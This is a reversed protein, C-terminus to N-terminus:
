MAADRGLGIEPGHSLGLRLDPHRHGSRWLPRITEFRRGPYPFGTSPLGPSSAGVRPHADMSEGSDRRKTASFVLSTKTRRQRCTTTNWIRAPTRIETSTPVDM